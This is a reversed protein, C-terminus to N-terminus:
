SAVDANAGSRLCSSFPKLFPRPLPLFTFRTLMRVESALRQENQMANQLHKKAEFLAVKAQLFINRTSPKSHCSPFPVQRESEARVRVLAENQMLKNSAEDLAAQLQQAAQEKEAIESLALARFTSADSSADSAHAGSSSAESRQQQQQQQQQLSTQLQLGKAQSASLQQKLADREMKVVDIAAMNRRVEMLGDMVAACQAATEADKSLM